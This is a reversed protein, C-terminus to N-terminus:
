LKLYKKFNRWLNYPNNIELINIKYIIKDCNFLM